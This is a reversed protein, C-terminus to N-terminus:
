ATPSFMFPGIPSYMFRGSDTYIITFEQYDEQISFFGNGSYPGTAENPGGLYAADTISYHAGNITVEVPTQFHIAYPKVGGSAYGHEISFEEMRHYYEEIEMVRFVEGEVFVSESRNRLTAQSPPETSEPQPTEELEAANTIAKEQPKEAGTDEIQDLTERLKETNEAATLGQELAKRAAGSDGAATYAKALGIYADAQMPDIEIATNFALIAEEYKGENLYRMGLDYQEQWSANNGSKASTNGCACLAVGLALVILIVSKKMSM